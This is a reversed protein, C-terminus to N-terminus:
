KRMFTKFMDAMAKDFQKKYEKVEDTILVPPLVDTMVAPPESTNQEDFDSLNGVDLNKMHDQEAQKEDFNM